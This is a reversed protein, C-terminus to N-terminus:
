RAMIVNYFAYRGTSTQVCYNLREKCATTGCIALTLDNDTGGNKLQEEINISTSPVSTTERYLKLNIAACIAPDINEFSLILDTETSPTWQVNTGKQFIWGTQTQGAEFYEPKNTFANLGGGLQHYIRLRKQADTGTNFNADSPLIFDINAPDMNPDAMRMQEVAQAAATAYNILEQARLGARDNDLNNTLRDSDGSRTVLATLAAFLVVAILLYIVVNGHTRSQHKFTPM